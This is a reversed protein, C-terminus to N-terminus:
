LVFGHARLEDEVERLVYQMKTPLYGEYDRTMFFAVDEQDRLRMYEQHLANYDEQELAFRMNRIANALAPLANQFHENVLERVEDQALSLLKAYKVPEPNLSYSILALRQTRPYNGERYTGIGLKYIEEALMPSWQGMATRTREARQGTELIAQLHYYAEEPQNNM